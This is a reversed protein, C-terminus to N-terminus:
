EGTSTPQIPTPPPINAPPEPPNESRREVFGEKTGNGEEQNIVVSSSQCGAGIIVAFLAIGFLATVIKM